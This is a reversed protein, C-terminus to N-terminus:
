LSVEGTFVIEAPGELRPGDDFSLAVRRDQPDGSRWATPEVLSSRVSAIGRVVGEDGRAM